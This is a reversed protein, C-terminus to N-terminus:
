LTVTRLPVLREHKSLAAQRNRLHTLRATKQGNSGETRPALYEMMPAAAGAYVVEVDEGSVFRLVVVFDPPDHEESSRFAVKENGFTAKVSVAEDRATVADVQPTSDPLLRLDFMWAAVAEGIDGVLKGDLTFPRNLEEALSSAATLIDKVLGAHRSTVESAEPTQDYRYSPSVVCRQSIVHGSVVM